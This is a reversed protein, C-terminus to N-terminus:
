RRLGILGLGAPPAFGGDSSAAKGRRANRM